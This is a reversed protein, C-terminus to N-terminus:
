AQELWRAAALYRLELSGQAGKGVRSVDLTAAHDLPDQPGEESARPALHLLLSGPRLPLPDDRWAGLRPGSVAGVALGAFQREEALRELAFILRRSALEVGDFVV